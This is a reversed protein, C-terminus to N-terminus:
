GQDLVCKELCSRWEIGSLILSRLRLSVRIPLQFTLEKELLKEILRWSAPLTPTDSVRNVDRSVRIYHDGDPSVLLHVKRGANYTVEHHKAVRSAQLLRNKDLEVGVEVVTANQRWMHGFHESKVLPADAPAKPSRLFRGSDPDPERPQNKIWGSPLEIAAFEQVSMNTNVWVVIEKSSVIQLIEFGVKSKAGSKRIPNKSAVPKTKSALKLVLAAYSKSQRIFPTSSLELM